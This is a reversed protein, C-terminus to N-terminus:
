SALAREFLVGARRQYFEARDKMSTAEFEGLLQSEKWCVISEDMTQRNKILGEVLKILRDRVPRTLECWKGDQKVARTARAERLAPEFSHTTNAYDAVIEAALVQLTAVRIYVFM